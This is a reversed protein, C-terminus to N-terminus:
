PPRARGDRARGVQPVPRHQDRLHPRDSRLRPLSRPLFRRDSVPSGSPPGAAPLAIAALPHAGEAKTRLHGRVRSKKAHTKARKTVPLAFVKNDIIADVQHTFYNNPLWKWGSCIAVREEADASGRLPESRPNRWSVGLRKIFHKSVTSVHVNSVRASKLVDKIHVEAEGKAARVLRLRANNLARLKVATIKPKRGRAESQGRKHTVGKLARRVTTLDPGAEDRSKRTRSILDCIQTPTQGTASLRFCRDLEKKSLHPAM